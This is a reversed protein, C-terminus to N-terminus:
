ALRITLDFYEHAGRGASDKMGKWGVWCKTVTLGYQQYIAKVRSVVKLEKDATSRRIYLYTLM